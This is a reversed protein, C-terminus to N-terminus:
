ELVLGTQGLVVHAALTTDRTSYYYKSLLLNYKSLTVGSEHDAAAAM